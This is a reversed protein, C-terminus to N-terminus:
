QKQHCYGRRGPTVARVANHIQHFAVPTILQPRGAALAQALVEVGAQHVVALARSFV